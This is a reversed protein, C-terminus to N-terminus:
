RSVAATFVELVAAIEGMSDRIPVFLELVVNDRTDMVPQFLGREIMVGEKKRTPTLATYRGGEVAKLIVFWQSQHATEVSAEIDFELQFDVCQPTVTIVKRSRGVGAETHEIVIQRGGQADGRTLKGAPKGTPFLRSWIPSALMSREERIVGKGKFSVSSELRENVTVQFDGAREVITEAFAEWGSLILVAAICRCAMREM